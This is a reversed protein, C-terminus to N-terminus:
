VRISLFIYQIVQQIDFQQNNSPISPYNPYVSSGPFQTSSGVCSPYDQVSTNQQSPYYNYASQTVTPPYNIPQPLPPYLHPASPYNQQQNYYQQGHNSDTLWGTPRQNVM